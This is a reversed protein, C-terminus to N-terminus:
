RLESPLGAEADIPAMGCASEQFTALRAADPSGALGLRGAEALFARLGDWEAAGLRYVMKHKLYDLITAEDRGRAGAQEAAIREIAKSGRRRASHLLQYVERSAVSERLAWVAYVFPRSTTRTWTEGLDTVFLGAPRSEFLAKDGIRVAADHRALAEGLDLPAPSFRPATRWARAFLVQVLANSTRSDPDLAVSAVDEVPKKSVLLVSASPGNSSISLGPLAVLGPIRALEITPLLAGDLQGEALKTALASPVDFSLEISEAAPGEALGHVLPKANLFSVAGLRVRTVGSSV